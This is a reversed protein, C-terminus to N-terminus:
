KIYDIGRIKLENVLSDYKIQYDKDKGIGLFFRANDNNVVEELLTEVESNLMTYVSNEKFFNEKKLYNKILLEEKESNPTYEVGPTNLERFRERMQEIDM